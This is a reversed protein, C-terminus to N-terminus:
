AQRENWIRAAIETGIDVKEAFYIFDALCSPSNYDFIDQVKAHLEQAAALAHADVISFIKNCNDCFYIQKTASYQLIDEGCTCDPMLSANICDVCTDEANKSYLPMINEANYEAFKLGCVTGRLVNSYLHRM